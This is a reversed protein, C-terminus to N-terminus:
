RPGKPRPVLQWEASTSVDSVIRVDGEETLTRVAGRLARFADSSLYAGFDAESRWSSVCCLQSEDELSRFFRPTGVVGAASEVLSRASLVFERRKEPRERATILISHVSVQKAFAVGTARFCREGTM